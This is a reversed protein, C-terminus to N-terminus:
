SCIIEMLAKDNRYTRVIDYMSDDYKIRTAYQKRGDVMHASQEFDEIRTELVTKVTIGSRLAEYYEARTVSKERVFIPIEKLKEVPFGSEDKGNEVIFLCAEEVM